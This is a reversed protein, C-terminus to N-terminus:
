MGLTILIDTVIFDLALIAVSSIVVARMTALGVGKAGGSANYGQYCGILSLALGFVAAKILGMMLDDIDTYWRVNYIFLGVDVGKIRVAFLYAGLMGVVNFVITLLPVMFTSAILRPVILYQIPNVALTALADIQETIRMSGLETAMASGARGTVMIATLVPSLERTLVLSVASGVYADANFMRFGEVSQLGFVGGVFLAVLAIISISGVGIFEMSQIVLGWRFPRRLGWSIAHGLLLMMDGLGRIFNLPMKIARDFVAVLFHFNMAGDNM